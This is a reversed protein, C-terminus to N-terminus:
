ISSSVVGTEAKSDEIENISIHQGKKEQDCCTGIFAIGKVYPNPTSSCLWAVIDTNSM